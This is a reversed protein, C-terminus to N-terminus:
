KLAGWAKRGEETVTGDHLLGMRRLSSEAVAWGGHQSMGHAFYKEDKGDAVLVANELIKRQTPTLKM